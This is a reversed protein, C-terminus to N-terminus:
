IKKYKAATNIVFGHEKLILDITKQSLIGNKYRNKNVMVRNSMPSKGNYFIEHLAEEQTYEKM